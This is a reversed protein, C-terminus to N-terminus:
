KAQYTVPGHNVGKPDTTKLVTRSWARRGVWIGTVLSWLMTLTYLIAFLNFTGERGSFTQVIGLSFGAVGLILGLWGQWPPYVASQVMGIGVFVFALWYVVITMPFTGRSTASLAAVVISAAEKSAPPAALWNAVAGALAVDLSYGVAWLTTGVIILYFGPRAWAAGSTAISRYVGSLGIMVALISLVSLLEGVQALAAQEGVAKLEAQMDSASAIIPLLLLSSIVWLLVGVIFGTSSIKQLADEKVIGQAQKM